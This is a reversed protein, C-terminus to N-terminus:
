LTIYASPLGHASVTIASPAATGSDTTRKLVALAKGFFTKTTSATYSYATKPDASGFAILKAGGEVQISLERDDDTELNGAADHLEINVFVLTDTKTQEETCVVIQKAGHSSYLVDKGIISGNQYSVACLEGSELTIEYFVRYDVAEGAQKKGQSKGNVFLETEDGASFVEVIAKKGVCDAYSFSREIHSLIWPTKLLTEGFHRPNQVAIYPASRLGFVIERLFSMPRRNGLLDIDGCYALQAPFRAGFGGEGATYAPIGVGAEGIYDWGTWTFDGIVSPFKLVERWNRAIDPPYTESGVIVRNKRTKADLEYRATMYNYGAVDLAACAKDLRASIEPHVVIKDIHSDMVTMFDNVNGGGGDSQAEGSMVEGIIKGIADSAAFVGNIGATTLRSADLSRVFDAIRHAYESGGNTGIEPIENGISYLIVSPHNFDKNVMATVDTQWWEEFFLGYDYNSKMRNWMDSFEDMVFVGLEDCARLMAQSIPQHASRIANFGASKLIKVRRFEADEYTAAGLIGSDHHVCAGRLKVATGNVLLGRKADAFVTRIGFKEEAEDIIEGGNEGIKQLIVRMDYLNPETDSWLQANEIAIRQFVTRKEGARVFIVTNETSVTDNKFRIATSVQLEQASDSMNEVTMEARIVSIEGASETVIKVGNEAIRCKEGQLLYVDRYIGAGSYWRSNPMAGARLLVRLENQSGFRLFPTLDASFTAYGSPSKAVFQGNLYVFANMYVGEFVVRTTKAAWDKPCEFLKVYTYCEADRFGTNAGNVSNAQAKESIMADHPLEVDHAKDSINWVLAFSDTDKWFKWGSNWLISKMSGNYLRGRARKM